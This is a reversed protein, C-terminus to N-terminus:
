KQCAVEKIHQCFQEICETWTNLKVNSQDPYTGDLLTRKLDEWDNYVGTHGAFEVSGGGDRHVLTSIGCSISEAVHNPGPDFRSASVYVDYRGLEKGLAEGYLPKIVNTNKFTGRERGIYTFTFREGEPSGVFRDLEDYIDFGKLYNDSWHHTVINVKGNSIKTQRAFTERDVGNKIVASHKVEVGREEFHDKLWESVYVISDLEPSVRKVLEDVHSTGKRADNENLRLIIKVENKLKEKYTICDLLGPQGDSADLGGVLIVDPDDFTELTQLEIGNEKAFLHMSSVWLNGGGYPGVIPRRNMFVKM